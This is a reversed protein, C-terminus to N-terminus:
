PSTIGPVLLGWLVVDRTLNWGSFTMMIVVEVSFEIAAIRALLAILQRAEM